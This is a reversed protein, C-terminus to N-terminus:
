AFFAPTFLTRVIPRDIACLVIGCVVGEVCGRIVGEIRSCICSAISSCIDLSLAIPVLPAHGLPCFVQYTKISEEDGSHTGPM